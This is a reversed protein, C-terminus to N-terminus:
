GQARDLFRPLPSPMVAYSHRGEGNGQSHFQRLGPSKGRRLSRTERKELEPRSSPSEPTSEIVSALRWIDEPSPAVRVQENYGREEVLNASPAVPPIDWQFVSRPGG